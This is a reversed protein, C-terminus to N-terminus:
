ANWTVKSKKEREKLWTIMTLYDSYDSISVFSLYSCTSVSTIRLMADAASLTAADSNTARMMTVIDQSPEARFVQLQSFWITVRSDGVNAIFSEVFMYCLRNPKETKEGFTRTSSSAWGHLWPWTDSINVRSPTWALSRATQSTILTHRNRNFETVRRDIGRRMWQRDSSKDYGQRTREM